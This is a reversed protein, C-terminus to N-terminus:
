HILMLFNRLITRRGNRRRRRCFGLGTSAHCIVTILIKGKRRRRRHRREMLLRFLLSVQRWREYWDSWCAWSCWGIMLQRRRLMLIIRYITESRRWGTNYNIIKRVHVKSSILYFTLFYTAAIWDGLVSWCWNGLLPLVLLIRYDQVQLFSNYMMLRFRHYLM